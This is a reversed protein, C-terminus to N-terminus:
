HYFLQHFPIKSNAITQIKRILENSRDYSTNPIQDCPLLAGQSQDCTALIQVPPSMRLLEDIRPRWGSLSPAGTAM